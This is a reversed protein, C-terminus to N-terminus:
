WMEATGKIHLLNDSEVWLIYQTGSLKKLRRGCFKYTSNAYLPRQITYYFSKLNLHSSTHQRLLKLLLIVSLSGQVVFNEYKEEKLYSYDYHIKHANFTLASYRFLLIQSPTISISFEPIWTKKQKQLVKKGDKEELQYVICTRERLHIEKIQEKDDLPAIEKNTWIAIANNKYYENDIKEVTETCFAPYGMRLPWLTDKKMYELSGKAWLRRVWEVSPTYVMDGGDKALREEPECRSFYLYNYGLPLISGRKFRSIDPSSKFYPSLAQDLQWSTTPSLFDSIYTTKTNSFKDVTRRCTSTRRSFDKIISYETNKSIKHFNQILVM